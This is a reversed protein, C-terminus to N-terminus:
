HYSLLNQGAILYANLNYVSDGMGSLQATFQITMNGGPFCFGTLNRFEVFGNSAIVTMTDSLYGPRGQCHSSFPVVSATVMTMSDTINVAGFHDVLALRPRPQLEAYYHNILIATPSQSSKGTDISTINKRFAVM